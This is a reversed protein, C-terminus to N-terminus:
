LFVTDYESKKCSLNVMANCFIFAIFMALLSLINLKNLPFDCVFSTEGSWDREKGQKKSQQWCGRNDRYSDHSAVADNM